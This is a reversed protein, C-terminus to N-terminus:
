NKNTIQFSSSALYDLAAQLTEFRKVRTTNLLKEIPVRPLVGIAYIEIDLPVHPIDHSINDEFDTSIIYIKRIASNKSSTSGAGEQFITLAHYISAAINSRPAPPANLKQRVQNAFTDWAAKRNTPHGNALWPNKSEVGGSYPLKFRFYNESGATIVGYSFQVNASKAMTDLLPLFEAPDPYPYAKIYSITRDGTFIIEVTPHITADTEHQSPINCACFTACLAVILLTKKM